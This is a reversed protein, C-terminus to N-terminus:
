IMKRVRRLHDEEANGSRAHAMAGPIKGSTIEGNLFDDIASLKEHSLVAHPPPGLAVTAASLPAALSAATVVAAFLTTFPRSSAFTRPYQTSRTPSAFQRGSTIADSCDSGSAAPRFM